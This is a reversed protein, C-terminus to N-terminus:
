NHPPWLETDKRERGEEEERLQTYCHGAAAKKQRLETTEPGAEWQEFFRTNLDRGALSLLNDQKFAPSWGIYM